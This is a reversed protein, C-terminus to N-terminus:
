ELRLSLTHSLFPPLYASLLEVNLTYTPFVQLHPCVNGDFMIVCGIGSGAVVLVVFDYIRSWYGTYSYVLKTVGVIALINLIIFIQELEM